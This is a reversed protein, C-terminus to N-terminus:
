ALFFSLLLLFWLAIIYDDARNRLAVMILLHSPRQRERQPWDLPRCRRRRVAAALRTKYLGLRTM